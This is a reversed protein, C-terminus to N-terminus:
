AEDLVDHTGIRRWVIHAEGQKLPQGYEFTARGDPAWTLEFVGPARLVGKVRLGARPPRGAKLDEVLKMVARKFASQQAKSLAAYDRDFRPLRRYTPM